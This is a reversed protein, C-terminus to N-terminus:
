PRMASPRRSPPASLGVAVGQESQLLRMAIIRLAAAIDEASADFKERIAEIASKLEEYTADSDASTM